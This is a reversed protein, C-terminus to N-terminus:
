IILRITPNTPIFQCRSVGATTESAREIIVLHLDNDTQHRESTIRQTVCSYISLTIFIVITTKLNVPLAQERFLYKKRTDFMDSIQCRPKMCNSNGVLTPIRSLSSKVLIRKNHPPQSHACQPSNCFLHKAIDINCYHNWDKM